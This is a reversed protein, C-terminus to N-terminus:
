CCFSLNTESLKKQKYVSLKQHMYTKSSVKCFQTPPNFSLILAQERERLPITISPRSLGQHVTAKGVTSALTVVCTHLFGTALLLKVLDVINSQM